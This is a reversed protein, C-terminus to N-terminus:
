PVRDQFSLLTSVIKAALQDSTESHHYYGLQDLAKTIACSLANPNSFYFRTGDMIMLGCPLEIRIGNELTIFPSKLFLSRLKM